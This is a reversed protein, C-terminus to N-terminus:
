SAPAAPKRRANQERMSRRTTHATASGKGSVDKTAFAGTRTRQLGFSRGLLVQSPLVKAAGDSGWGSSRRGKCHNDQHTTICPGMLSANFGSLLEGLSWRHLKYSVNAPALM